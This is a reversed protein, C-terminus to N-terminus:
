RFFDTRLDTESIEKIITVNIWKTKIEFIEKIEIMPMDVAVVLVYGYKLDDNHFKCYCVKGILKEM